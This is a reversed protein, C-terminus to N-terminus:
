LVSTLSSLQFFNDSFFISIVIIFTSRNIQAERIKTEMERRIRLVKHPTVNGSDDFATQKRKKRRKRRVRFFTFTTKPRSYLTFYMQGDDSCESLDDVADGPGGFVHSMARDILGSPIPLRNRNPM